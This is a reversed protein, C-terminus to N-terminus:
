QEIIGAPLKEFASKGVVSKGKGTGLTLSPSTDGDQPNGGVIRRSSDEAQQVEVARNVADVSSEGSDGGM